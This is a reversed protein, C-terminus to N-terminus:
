WSRMFGTPMHRMHRTSTSPMRPRCILQAVGTSRRCPRACRTAVRHLLGLVAHELEEEDVVREVARHAVAAALARELVLRQREAGALRAVDLLLPVELLRDRDAVEHQEVPLAADLAPAARAEGGLDRAVREDVEAPAALLGLDDGIGVLRERRVEGAVDHLDAGDARQGRARVAELRTRPVELRGLRRALGARDAAPARDLRRRVADHTQEADVGLRHVLAPEAVLAAVAVLPDVGVGAHRAGITRVLPRMLSTDHGSASSAAAAASRRTRSSCPDDAIPTSPPASPVLSSAYM